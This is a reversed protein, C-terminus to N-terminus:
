THLTILVPPKGEKKYISIAALEQFYKSGYKSYKNIFNNKNYGELTNRIYPNDNYYCEESTFKFDNKKFVTLNIINNKCSLQTNKAYGPNITNIFILIFFIYKNM